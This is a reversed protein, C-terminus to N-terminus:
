FGGQGGMMNPDLGAQAMMSQSEQQVRSERAENAQNMAAAILDELMEKSDANLLSPDIDVARVTGACSITVKVMGGGSQGEVEIDKFKEQLEQMRMQMQQAQQMMKQMDFM